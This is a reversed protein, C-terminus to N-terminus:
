KKVIPLAFPPFLNNERSLAGITFYKIPLFIEVKGEIKWDLVQCNGAM